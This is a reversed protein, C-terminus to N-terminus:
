SSHFTQENYEMIHQYIGSEANHYMFFAPVQRDFSLRQVPCVAISMGGIHAVGRIADLCVLVSQGDATFITWIKEKLHVVKRSRPNIGVPLM